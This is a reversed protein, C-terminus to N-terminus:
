ERTPEIWPEPRNDYSRASRLYDKDELDVIRDLFDIYGLYEGEANYIALNHLPSTVVQCGSPLDQLFEILIEVPLLKM